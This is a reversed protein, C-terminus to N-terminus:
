SNALHPKEKLSKSDRQAILDQRIHFSFDGPMTKGQTIARHMHGVVRKCPQTYKQPKGMVFRQNYLRLPLDLEKCILENFTEKKGPKQLFLQKRDKEPLHYPMKYTTSSKPLYLAESILDESIQVQVTEGEPMSLTAVGDKNITTMLEYARQIDVGWPELGFYGDLGVQRFVHMNPEAQHLDFFSDSLLVM